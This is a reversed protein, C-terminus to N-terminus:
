WSDRRGAKRTELVLADWQGRAVKEEGAWREDILDLAAEFHDGTRTHIYDLGQHELTRGTSPSSTRCIARAARRRGSM